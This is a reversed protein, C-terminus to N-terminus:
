VSNVPGMPTTPMELRFGAAELIQELMAVSPQRRGSEIDAVSSQAVQARQALERQSMGRRTRADLVLKAATTLPAKRSVVVRCQYRIRERRAMWGPTAGTGAGSAVAATGDRM